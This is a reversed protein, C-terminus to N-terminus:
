LSQKFKEIEMERLQVDLKLKKKELEFIDEERQRGRSSNEEVTTYLELKIKALKMYEESLQSSTLQQINPRRRKAWKQKLEASTPQMSKSRHNITKQYRWHHTPNNQSSGPQPLLNNSEEPHAESDDLEENQQELSYSHDFIIDDNLEIGCEQSEEDIQQEKPTYDSDFHNVLGYVTKKNMINLALDITPDRGLKSESNGGGTKVVEKREAALEKRVNKKINDFFKKLSEENRPYNGPCNSNFVACIENWAEDKQRWTRKRLDVM